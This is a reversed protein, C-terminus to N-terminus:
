HTARIKGVEEEYATVIAVKYGLTIELDDYESVTFDKKRAKQLLSEIVLAETNAIKALGIWVMVEKGEAERRIIKIKGPAEEMGRKWGKLFHPETLLSVPLIDLTDPLIKGKVSLVSRLDFLFGNKPDFDYKAIPTKDRYFVGRQSTGEYYLKGNTQASCVSKLAGSIGWERCNNGILTQLDEAEVKFRKEATFGTSIAVALTAVMAVLFVLSFDKRM